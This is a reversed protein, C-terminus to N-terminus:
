HPGGNNNTFPRTVMLSRLKDTLAGHRINSVESTSQEAEVEKSLEITNMDYSNSNCGSPVRRKKEELSSSAASTTIALISHVTYLM